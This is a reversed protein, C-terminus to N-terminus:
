GLRVSVMALFADGAAADRPDDALMERMAECYGAVMAARGDSALADALGGALRTVASFGLRRALGRIADARRSLEGVSLLRVDRALQDIRQGLESVGAPAGGGDAMEWKLVTAM